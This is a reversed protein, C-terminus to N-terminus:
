EWRDLIDLFINLKDHHSIILKGIAEIDSDAYEWMTKEDNLFAIYGNGRRRTSIKM